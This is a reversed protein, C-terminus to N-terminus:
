NVRNPEQPTRDGKTQWGEGARGYSIGLEMWQQSHTEADTWTLRQTSGRLAAM